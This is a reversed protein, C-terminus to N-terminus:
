QALNNQHMRACAALQDDDVQLFSGLVPPCRKHNARAGVADHAGDHAGEVHTHPLGNCVGERSNSQAKNRSRGVRSVGKIVADGQAWRVKCEQILMRRM